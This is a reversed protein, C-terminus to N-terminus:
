RRQDRGPGGASGGVLTGIDEGRVARRLNGPHTIDFVVIPMDNDMCLSTATADM